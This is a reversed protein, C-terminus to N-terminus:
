YAVHASHWHRIHCYHCQCEYGKSRSSANPACQRKRVHHLKLNPFFIELLNRFPMPPNILCPLNLLSREVSNGRSSRTGGRGLRQRQTILTRQNASSPAQRFGFIVVVSAHPPRSRGVLGCSEAFGQQGRQENATASRSGKLCYQGREKGVPRESAGCVPTM